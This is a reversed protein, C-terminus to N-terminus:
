GAIRLTNAASFEARYILYGAAVLLVSVVSGLGALLAAFLLPPGAVLEGLSPM